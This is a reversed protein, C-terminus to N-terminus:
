PGGQPGLGFMFFSSHFLAASFRGWGARQIPRCYTGDIAKIIGDKARFGRGIGVRWDTQRAGSRGEVPRRVASFFLRTGRPFIWGKAKARHGPSRAASPGKKRHAGYGASNKKPLAATGLPGSPAESGNVFILENKRGMTGNKLGNSDPFVGTITPPNGSRRGRPDLRKAGLKDEKPGTASPSTGRYGWAPPVFLRDPGRGSIQDSHIAAM